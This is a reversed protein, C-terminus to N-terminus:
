ATFPSAEAIRVYRYHGLLVFSQYNKNDLDRATHAERLDRPNTLEAGLGSLMVIRM